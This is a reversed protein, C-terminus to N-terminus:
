FPDHFSKGSPLFTVIEELQQNLEEIFNKNREIENTLM